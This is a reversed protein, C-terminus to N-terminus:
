DAVQIKIVLKKVVDYGEVKINPQHVDNPFMLFFTDSDAEYFTGEVEYNTADFRYPKIIKANSVDAIGIREKGKIVYHLDIYKQHSEWIGETAQKSPAENISAFVQEGIIPYKGPPLHQLDTNKLFSFASDWFTKNALYQDHFSRLNVTEHMALILGNAWARQQVWEKLEKETLSKPSQKVTTSQAMLGISSITLCGFLFCFRIFAM